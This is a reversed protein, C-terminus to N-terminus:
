KRKKFSTQQSQSTTLFDSPNVSVSSPDDFYDQMVRDVLEERVISVPPLSQGTEPISLLHTDKTYEVLLQQLKDDRLVENSKLQSFDPTPAPLTKIISDVYKDRMNQAIQSDSLSPTNSQSQGFHRVSPPKFDSQKVAMVSYDEKQDPKSESKVPTQLQRFSESSRPPNQVVEGTKLNGFENAHQMVGSVHGQPLTSAMQSKFGSTQLNQQLLRDLYADGLPAISKSEIQSIISAMKEPKQSVALFTEPKQSILFNKEPSQTMQALLEDM